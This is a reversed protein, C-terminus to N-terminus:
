GPALSVIGQHLEKEAPERVVPGFWGTTGKPNNDAGLIGGGTTM